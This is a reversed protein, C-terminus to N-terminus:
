RPARGIARAPFTSADLVARRGLPAVLRVEVPVFAVVARCVRM